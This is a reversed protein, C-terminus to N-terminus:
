ENLAEQIKQIRMPDNCLLVRRALEVSVRMDPDRMADRLQDTAQWRKREVSAWQQLDEVPCAYLESLVLYAPHEPPLPRATREEMAQLQAPSITCAAAVQRLTLGNPLRLARLM